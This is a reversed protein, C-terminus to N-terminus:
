DNIRESVARADERMEVITACVDVCENCINANDSVVLTDVIEYHKDCFTCHKNKEMPEIKAFSWRLTHTKIAGLNHCFLDVKNKLQPSCSLCCIHVARAVVM